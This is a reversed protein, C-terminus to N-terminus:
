SRSLLSRPTTDPALEYSGAKIQRAQGSLRFWWFLLTPDVQLGAESVAQAVGGSGEITVIVSKGDIATAYNLARRLNFVLRTREGAQVVNIARLDGLNVDQSNKGTANVTAGFDLAIRPPSTISFGVPLSAPAQKKSIKVVLNSGQQNATIAEIANDQAAAGSPALVPLAGIANGQAAVTSCLALLALMLPLVLLTGLTHLMGAKGAGRQAIM